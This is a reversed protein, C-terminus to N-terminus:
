FATIIKDEYSIILKSLFFSLFQKIELNVNVAYFKHHFFTSKTSKKLVLAITCEKVLCQM